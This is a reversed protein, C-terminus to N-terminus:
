NQHELSLAPPRSPTPFAQRLASVIFADSERDAITVPEGAKEEDAIVGAEYHALVIDGAERIIESITDLERPVAM